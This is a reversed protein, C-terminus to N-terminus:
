PVTQSNGTEAAAASGKPRKISAYFQGNLRLDKQSDVDHVTGEFTGFASEDEFRSIVIHVPQNPLNHLVSGDRETQIFVSAPLKQGALASSTVHKSQHRFMMSPFVEREPDAYSTIQLVSPYGANVIFALHCSSSLVPGGGIQWKMGPADMPPIASGIPATPEKADPDDKTATPKTIAIRTPESDTAKSTEPREGRGRGGREGREGRAGEGGERGAPNRAVPESNGSLLAVALVILLAVGGLAGGILLAKRKGGGGESGSYSRRGISM